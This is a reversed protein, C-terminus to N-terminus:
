VLFTTVTGLPQACKINLYKRFICVWFLDNDPGANDKFLQRSESVQLVKLYSRDRFPFLPQLAQPIQVKRVHHLAINAAVRTDPTQLSCPVNM